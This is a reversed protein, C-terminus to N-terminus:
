RVSCAIDYEVSFVRFLSKNEFSKKVTLMGRGQCHAGFITVKYDVNKIKDTEGSKEHSVKDSLIKKINHYENKYKRKIWKKSLFFFILYYLSSVFHKDPPQNASHCFWEVTMLRSYRPTMIFIFEHLGRPCLRWTPTNWYLFHGM